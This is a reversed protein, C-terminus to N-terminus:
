KQITKSSSALTVTTNDGSLECTIKIKDAKAIVAPLEWRYEAGPLVYQMTTLSTENKGVIKVNRAVLHNNGNNTLSLYTKKTFQDDVITWSPQPKKQWDKGSSFIPLNMSILFNLGSQQMNRQGSVESVFLRYYKQTKEPAPNQLVVRIKQKSKAKITAAKPLVLIDSTTDFKDDNKSQSWSKVVTEFMRADSGKNELIVEAITSRPSVELSTPSIAIQAASGSSWLSLLCFLFYRM